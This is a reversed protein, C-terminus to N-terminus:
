NFMSKNESNKELQERKVKIAEKIKRFIKRPLWNKFLDNAM